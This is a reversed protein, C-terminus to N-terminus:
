LVDTFILYTYWRSDEWVTQKRFFPLLFVDRSWFLFRLDIYIFITTFFYLLRLCFFLWCILCVCFVVFSCCPGMIFHHTFEHAGSYATRSRYTVWPLPVTLNIDYLSAFPASFVLVNCVPGFNYILCVLRM